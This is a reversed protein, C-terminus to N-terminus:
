PAFHIGVKRRPLFCSNRNEREFQLSCFCSLIWSSVSFWHRYLFVEGTDGYIPLNRLWEHFSQLVIPFFETVTSKWTRSSLSSAKHVGVNKKWFTSSNKSWINLATRSGFTHWWLLTSKFLLDSDRDTTNKWKDDNQAKLRHDSFVRNHGHSRRQVNCWLSFCFLQCLWPPVFYPNEKKVLNKTKKKFIKNGCHPSDQVATFDNLAPSTEESQVKKTNCCHKM